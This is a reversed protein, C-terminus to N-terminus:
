FAITVTVTDSYLGAHVDQAGNIRGYITFTVTRSANNPISTGITMTDVGSTEGWVSQRLADRYLNYNLTDPWSGTRLQRNTTTGSNASPGIGM